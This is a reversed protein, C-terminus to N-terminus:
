EIPIHSQSNPVTRGTIPSVGQGAANEYKIYGNPYGPSSGRPPTPNMIRITDVQGNAGGTGGMYATGTQKGAPNIVPTPGQAGRPVPFATGNPSVVFDPAKNASKAVDDAVKPGLRTIGAPAFPVLAAGADAGLHIANEALGRLAISQLAADGSILGHTYAAGAGIVQGVDYLIFGLDVITDAARGDPDIFKYPNNNGYNYRNFSHLNTETFPQPDIGMFRGMVPDYWRAGMYTLGSIPDHPHGTFARTNSQAAPENKLKEGYPQYDERWLIAGQENTAALPSGLADLHYYTTQTTAHATAAFVLLAAATLLHTLAVVWTKGNLTKL